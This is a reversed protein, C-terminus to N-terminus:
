INDVKSEETEKEENMNKDKTIKGTKDLETGILNPSIWDESNVGSDSWARITGGFNM